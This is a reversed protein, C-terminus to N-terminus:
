FDLTEIKRILTFVDDTLKKFQKNIKDIEKKVKPEEKTTVNVRGSVALKDIFKNFPLTIDTFKSNLKAISAKRFSSVKKPTGTKFIGSSSGAGPGIFEDLRIANLINHM